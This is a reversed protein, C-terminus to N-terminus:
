LSLQPVIMVVIEDVGTEFAVALAAVVVPASLWIIALLKVVKRCNSVV